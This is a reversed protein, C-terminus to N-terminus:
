AEGGAPDMDCYPARSFPLVKKVKVTVERETQAVQARSEPREPIYGDLM